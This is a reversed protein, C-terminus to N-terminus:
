LLVVAALAVLVTLLGVTLGLWSGDPDRWGYSNDPDLSAMTPKGTSSDSPRLWARSDGLRPAQSEVHSTVRRQLFSFKERDVHFPSM